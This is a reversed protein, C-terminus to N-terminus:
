GERRSDIRGDLLAEKSGCSNAEWVAVRDSYGNKRVGSCLRM